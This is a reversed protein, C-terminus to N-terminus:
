CAYVSCIVLHHSLVGKHVTVVSIVKSLQGMLFVAMDCSLDSPSKETIGDLSFLPWFVDCFLVHVIYLVERLSWNNKSM